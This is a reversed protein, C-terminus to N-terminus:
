QGCRQAHRKEGHHGRSYLGARSFYENQHKREHLESRRRGCRTDGRHTGVNNGNAATLVFDTGTGGTLTLTNATINTNAAQSITASTAMENLTVADATIAALTYSGGADTFSLASGALSNAHRGPALAGARRINGLGNAPGLTRSKQVILNGGSLAAELDGVTLMSLTLPTGTAFFTGGTTSTGTSAGAAGAVIDLDTPDLLLTGAKGKPALRNATGTFDLVGHSSTEVFGGDGGQAGGTVSIAGAFVTHKDSWVM